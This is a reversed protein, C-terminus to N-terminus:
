QGVGRLRTVENDAVTIAREHPCICILFHCSHPIYPPVLIPSLVKSNGWSAEADARAGGGVLMVLIANVPLHSVSVWSPYSSNQLSSPSFFVRLRGNRKNVPCNWATNWFHIHTGGGVSGRPEECTDRIVDNLFAAVVLQDCLHGLVTVGEGPGLDVGCIGLDGVGEGDALFAVHLGDSPLFKLDTDFAECVNSFINFIRSDQIKFILSGLRNFGQTKLGSHVQFSALQAHLEGIVVVGRLDASAFKNLYITVFSIMIINALIISWWHGHLSWFEVRILLNKGLHSGLTVNSPSYVSSVQLNLEAGRGWPSTEQGSQTQAWRRILDCKVSFLDNDSM